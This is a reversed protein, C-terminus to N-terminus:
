FWKRKKALIILAAVVVISLAIVYVYGYKWAFEPMAQFNMGYWGVIITLPFFATTIVTLIKMQNNMKMDLFSSYADQLHDASDSLSDVDSRMRTVRATLNALYVMDGEAFIDNENDELTAAADLIQDYYHYLKLLKKKLGLLETNFQEGAEGRVVVEEMEAISNRIEEITGMGDAILAELFACFVKGAKAGAAAARRVARLFGEKTSGDYDVIDIVLLLNKKLCVGIWDDEGDRNVIRLETFTYDPYVEAGTRFQPNARRCEEVTEPLFGLAEAAGEMEDSGIYGATLGDARIDGIGIERNQNELDYFLM